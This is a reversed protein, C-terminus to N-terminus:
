LVYLSVPSDMFKNSLGAKKDINHKFNSMKFFNYIKTNDM